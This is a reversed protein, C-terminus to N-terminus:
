SPAHPRELLLAQGYGDASYTVVVRGKAELHRLADDFRHPHWGITHPFLTAHFGSIPERDDPFGFLATLIDEEERGTFARRHTGQVNFRPREDRIARHEAARALEEARALGRSRFHEVTFQAILPWWDKQQRHQGWRSLFDGAVGVYLLRGQRDYFRYVTSRDSVKTSRDRYGMM